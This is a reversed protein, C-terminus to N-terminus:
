GLTRRISNLNFTLYTAAEGEYVGYQCPLGTFALAAIIQSEM